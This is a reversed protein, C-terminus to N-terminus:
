QIIMDNKKSKTAETQSQSSFLDMDDKPEEGESDSDAAKDAAETGSVSTQDCTKRAAQGQATQSGGFRSAFHTQNFSLERM